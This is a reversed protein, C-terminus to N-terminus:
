SIDSRSRAARRARRDHAARVDSEHGVFCERVGVIDRAPLAAVGQHELEDFGEPAFARSSVM